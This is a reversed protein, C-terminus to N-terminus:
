IIHVANRGLNIYSLAASDDLRKFGLILVVGSVDSPKNPTLLENLDKSLTRM